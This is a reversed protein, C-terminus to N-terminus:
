AGGKSPKRGAAGLKRDLDTKMRAAAAPAVYFHQFCEELIQLSVEAENPQVDIIEFTNIDAIPHASFNGYHRIADITLRLTNPIIKSRDSENLLQDIETALDKSKYGNSHLIRQLCRRSLAASAKPSITLVDAAEQYDVAIDSPVDSPIKDRKPSQPDILRRQWITDGEGEKIRTEYYAVFRSCMISPCYAWKVRYNTPAM